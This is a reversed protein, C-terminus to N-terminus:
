LSSQRCHKRYESMSMGTERRFIKTFYSNNDFGCASCIASIPLRSESLLLRAKDCRVTMMFDGLTISTIKKFERLFHYKSLGAVAAVDDASIRRDLNANIFGIAQKISNITKSDKKRAESLTHRRSLYLMLDLVAVKIGAEKYIADSDAYEGTIRRFLSSAAEDHIVPRYNIDSTALGNQLLFSHDPILCYYRLFKDAETYHLDFANVIVIDGPAIPYTDHNLFVTGSGETIYLIEVNEHWNQVCRIKYHLSAVRPDSSPDTFSESLTDLHFIFPLTSEKFSHSEYYFPSDM